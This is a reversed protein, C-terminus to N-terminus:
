PDLELTVGEADCAPTRDFYVGPAAAM